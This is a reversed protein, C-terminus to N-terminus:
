HVGRRTMKRRTGRRKPAEPKPEDCDARARETSPADDPRAGEACAPDDQQFEPLNDKRYPADPRLGVELKDKLSV